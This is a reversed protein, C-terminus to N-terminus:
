LEQLQVMAGFRSGERYRLEEYGGEEVLRGNELVYVRDVNRITALRHAIIVVTMQGRLGDISDRVHRESEADLSSTAEDLILLRPERFLERAIAIRQRQGGSLRVGRDGVRTSYGEPLSEIFHAIHARQAARRVREMVDHDTAPDVPTMAINAAITDDFMVSEQGVYGIQSRWSAVAIETGPVGDIRVEGSRPKLMLTLLDVMTSKGAGSEGVLAITTRAPIILSIDKLVDGTESNYAFSVRDFVIERSLPALRVRGNPEANARLAELENKVMEVPGTSQLVQQWLGQISMMSNMVRHFVLIAVLIPALPQDLVAVQLVVIGVVFAVSLPESIVGTVANIAVKRYVHEAVRDSSEKVAKRHRGMQHTSKLYKFAQISQVLLKSFQSSEASAERSLERIRENLKRFIIMLAAGAAVAIVGFQWSLLMVIALYASSQIVRVLFSNLATFASVVGGTQTSIINMFHGTHHNVYYQYTMRGCADFVLMRLKKQLNTKLRASYLRHLLQIAAKIFFTIGIVILIRILSGSAGVVDLVRHLVAPMMGSGQAGVDLTALLPLLLAIGFGETLAALLALAFVVYM